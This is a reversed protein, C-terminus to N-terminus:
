KFFFFKKQKVGELINFFTAKYQWYIREKINLQCQEYDGSFFYEESAVQITIYFVLLCVYLLMAADLPFSSLLIM